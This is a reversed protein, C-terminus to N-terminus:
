SSDTSEGNGSSADAPRQGYGQTLDILALVFERDRDSLQFLDLALGVTM